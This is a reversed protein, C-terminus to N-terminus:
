AAVAKAAYPLARAFTAAGIGTWGGELLAQAAASVTAGTTLVDDVLIVSAQTTGPRLAPWRVDPPCRSACFAGAVNAERAAADLSTQPGTERRRRLVGPVVPVGWAEGLARALIEAQNYGRRKLRRRGLPIPILCAPHRPRVHRAVIRAMAPGLAVYGEYKLHHVIARAEEGLWVGSRVWTVAATWEV